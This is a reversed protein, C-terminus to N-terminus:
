DPFIASYLQDALHDKFEESINPYKNLILECIKDYRPYYLSEPESADMEESSFDRIIDTYEKLFWETIEKDLSLEKDATKEIKGASLFSHVGIIFFLVFLIGMVVSLIIKQVDAVPLPIIGLDFLVLFVIGIGGVLTFSWATSLNDKQRTNPDIYM